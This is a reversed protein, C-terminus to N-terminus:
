GCVAASGKEPPGVFPNTLKEITKFPGGAKSGLTTKVARPGVANFTLGEGKYRRAQAYTYMLGATQCQRLGPDAQVERSRDGLFVTVLIPAAIGLIAVLVYIAIAAVLQGHSLTFSAITAAGALGVAENKPNGV